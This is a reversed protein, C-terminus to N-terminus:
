PDAQLAAFSPLHMAVMRAPNRIQQAAMWDDAQKVLARGGEDGRLRGLCRRAAWAFFPMHVADLQGTAESLLVGARAADGRGWAVGARLVRALATAWPMREREMRRAEYEATDILQRRGTERAAALACGARVYRSFIRPVQVRFILSDTLTPWFEEMRRWAAEARGVYLDIEIQRMVIQFQQLNLGPQAWEGMAEGLERRAEEPRDAALQMFPKSFTKLDAIALRDARREAESLLSPLRAAIAAIEGLHYRSYLAIAQATNLEWWVGTCRSRFVEAARDCGDRADEWRGEVFAKMGEGLHIHGLTQPHATRAALGRATDLLRATRRRSAAGGSTAEHVAEMALARALRDPEGTRLALLLNLTTFYAGRMPDIMLLGAAASACVDLRILEDPPVQGVERPLFRLGRWWLQARRLLLSWLTRRPTKPYSMGVLGLVGSLLQIGEDVHGSILFQWAARHWLDRVEAAPADRAAALFERAAEGGRGADALAEGLKTRLRRQEQEEPTGFALALHYLTAANDFALTDAARAAALAYYHAARDDAGAGAFHGALTEPDAAGAAELTEALRRHHGALDAPPLRAVVTERIRDHYTEVEQGSPGGTRRILQQARLTAVADQDAAAVEAAQCAHAEALPRGAVAIVELLRRAPGPLRGVRAALMGGLTVEDATGSGELLHRVLEAVFFPSGGSERVVAEVRAQVGDDSHGLLALVLERAEGPELAEVTLERRDISEGEAARPVLFAQLFPSTDVDESRYCALFLCAPPDPPRLLEALLAASDVDGWQLDDITLVLAVKDGLRGLLERLAAFARRRLEQQNFTEAPRPPAGGVAAVRRLVPFVRGLSLVDRPLLAAVDAAPLRTLYRVLADILSDLAKYPVSEREYCRGALVVAECRETLGNLFHQVLATKGVGSRGRVHVTVARGQRAARFADALAALHPARGVLGMRPGAPPRAPATPQEPGGPLRSLVDEGRPRAAPDRSLLAVCLANLAEPTGPALDRPAPPDRECKERLVSLAPGAFPLRGTLAQYLMVGVSYWDSAASVPQCAAQEPAMYAITGVLQHQTSDHLGAADVEAALGFDLLVVRGQATVLANSPKIDRHLKNARHLATLGEALQRLAAVLRGLQASSLRAPSETAPDPPPVPADVSTNPIFRGCAGEQTVYDLFNTGEVLEMTFFWTRGDFVLEHLSVLNPHAVDALARFEQKFRYLVGAGVDQMTKLAVVARRGPNYARYVIGMGGRGLESLIEYEGLRPLPPEAPREVPRGAGPPCGKSVTAYPDGAESAPQLSGPAAPTCQEEVTHPAAAEGPGPRPRSLVDRLDDQNPM